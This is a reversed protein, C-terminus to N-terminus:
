NKTLHYGSIAWVKSGDPLQVNHYDRKFTGDVKCAVSTVIVTANKKFASMMRRFQVVDMEFDKRNASELNILKANM